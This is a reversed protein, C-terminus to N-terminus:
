TRFMKRRKESFKFSFSFTTFLFIMFKLNKLDDIADIFSNRDTEYFISIMPNHDLNTRHYLTFISALKETLLIEHVYENLIYASSWSGSTPNKGVFM